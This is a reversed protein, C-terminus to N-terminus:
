RTELAFLEKNTGIAFLRDGVILPTSHPGAGYSFDQLKSPYVHECFTAGSEADLAIITEEPQWPGQRGRGNGKRYMTFLRGGDALIASDGTRLQLSWITRTGGEPWADALGTSDVIFNRNPGGWQRWAPAARSNE